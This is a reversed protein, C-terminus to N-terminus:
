RPARASAARTLPVAGSLIADRVAAKSSKGIGTTPFHEVLAAASPRKYGALQARTHALLADPTLGSGRRPIAVVVPTEGWRADPIGVVVASMVDPHHAAAAEIEAPAINMGGSIIIDKIRGTLTLRGAEDLHGLDGTRMAGDPLSWTRPDIGAPLYGRM